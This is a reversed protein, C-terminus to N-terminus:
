VDYRSLIHLFQERLAEKMTEPLDPSDSFVECMQKCEAASLRLEKFMHGCVASDIGPFEVVRNVCFRDEILFKV